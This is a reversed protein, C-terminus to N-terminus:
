KGILNFEAAKRLLLTTNKADFKFYINARHSDVTRRSLFLKDAIEQSTLGAAILQLIENERHTLKPAENTKKEKLMTHFLQEKLTPDMFTEGDYVREIATTLTQQDTHTKLLYGRCGLQMMDQLHFPSDLGTLVIISIDPHEELIIRALEDGNRDPLQIDLLLIDPINAKLGSLLANGTTYVDTVEIHDFPRLSNQLGTIVMLHDDTIAVKIPM